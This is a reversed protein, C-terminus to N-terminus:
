DGLNGPGVPVYPPAFRVGTSVGARELLVTAEQHDLDIGHKALTGVPDQALERRLVENDVLRELLSALKTEDVETKGIRKKKAM